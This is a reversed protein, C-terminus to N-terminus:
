ASSSAPDGTLKLPLGYTRNGIHHDFQPLAKSQRLIAQPV